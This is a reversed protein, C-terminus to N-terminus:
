AGGGSLIIEDGESQLIKDFTLSNVELTGDEAISVKNAEVSAELEKLAEKSTDLAKDFSVMQLITDLLEKRDTDSSSMFFKALGKGFYVSNTFTRFDIGLWNDIYKQIDKVSDAPFLPVGSASTVTVETAKNKRVRSITVVDTNDEPDVTVEVSLEKEGVRVVDDVPIDRLFKGYLGWTMAEFLASKASGNSDFRKDDLNKGLVLNLGPKDLSIYIDGISMFNSVHVNLIKM